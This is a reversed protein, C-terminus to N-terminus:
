LSAGVAPTVPYSFPPSFSLISMEPGCHRFRSDAVLPNNVRRPPTQGCIVSPTFFVRSPSQGLFSFSEVASDERNMIDLIEKGAEGYVPPEPEAYDNEANDEDPHRPRSKAMGAPESRITALAVPPTQAAVKVPTPCALCESSEIGDRECQRSLVSFSKGGHRFNELCIKLNSSFGAKM